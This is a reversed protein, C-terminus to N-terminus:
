QISTRTNLSAGNGHQGRGYDQGSLSLGCSKNLPEGIKKGTEADRKPPLEDPDLPVKESPTKRAGKSLGKPLFKMPNPNSRKTVPVLPTLLMDTGPYAFKLVATAFQAVPVHEGTAVPVEKGVETAGLAIAVSLPFVTVKEHPLGSIPLM